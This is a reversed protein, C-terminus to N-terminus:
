IKESIKLLDGAVTNVFELQETILKSDVTDEIVKIATEPIKIESEQFKDEQSKLLKIAESLQFLAKRIIKIHVPNVQKNEGRNLTAILTAIYSSLTHSLVIFKQVEKVNKQKSKPESLMRQLASAMNASSLNLEKRILKYETINFGKGTLGDAADALYNYNAILLNRMYNKLQPYEWSPFIFYSAILAIFSGIFTDIIREKVLNLDGMGIFSFMILIFPTMFLVSVVYNLRQFSYAGVMFILLFIFRATEDHVYYIILAGALGGIFTGILRQYNREKSLSFAPKLIVLITLLIWYSHSGSIIKSILYGVVCVIAVRISHRFIASDFTLNELFLKLDFNQHSVFRGLDKESSIATELKKEKFYSYITQIRSIINRLNILIKMLVLNNEVQDIELKLAELQPRFDVLAVPKENANIEVGMNELETGINFIIKHLHNLVATDGFLSRIAKYDYHTAMSQEFIDNLDSFILVLLRATNSPNKTIMRNKFLVERVLDQQEHVIIQQDVLKKYIEDPEQSTTYFGSKLKLYEGVKMVCEGLTHQAIRYPRFQSVALSLAMYWLGGAALCIIYNVLDGQEFHVDITLIMIILVGTAIS